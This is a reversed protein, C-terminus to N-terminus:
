GWFSNWSLWSHKDCSIFDSVDCMGRSRPSSIRCALCWSPTRPKFIAKCLSSNTISNAAKRWWYDILLISLLLIIETPEMVLQNPVRVVPWLQLSDKGQLKIICQFLLSLWSKCRRVHNLLFCCPSKDATDLALACAIVLSLLWALLLLLFNNWSIPWASASAANVFKSYRACLAVVM